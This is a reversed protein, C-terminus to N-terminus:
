ASRREGSHPSLGASVAWSGLVRGSATPQVLAEWLFVLPKIQLPLGSCDPFYKSGSAGLVSGAAGEEMRNIRCRPSGAPFSFKEEEM